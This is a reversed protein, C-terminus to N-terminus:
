RAVYGGDVTMGQGVVFSADPSSLWLVAAAIEEPRGLRGIPQGAELGAILQPANEPDNEIVADVAPTHITGPCIANIRIGQQIYDLAATKTLGMIGHKSAAYAPMGQLGVLGTISSCNVITGGGQKLMEAIEYKMCLFVSTLNTRIVADWDSTSYEGLKLLPGGIGANNFACDIRGFREVCARILAVVMAEDGVDCPYFDVTGGSAAIEDRAAEGAKANIDSLMVHAGSRAFAVATAKGIGSAAGTVLVAKDAFAQVM